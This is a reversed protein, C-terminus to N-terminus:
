GAKVTRALSLNDLKREIEMLRHLILIHTKKADIGVPSEDSTICKELREYIEQPVDMMENEKRLVSIEFQSGEHRKIYTMQRQPWSSTM